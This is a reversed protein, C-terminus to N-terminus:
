PQKRDPGRQAQRFGAMSQRCPPTKGVQRLGTLLAMKRQLDAAVLDDLYRKM